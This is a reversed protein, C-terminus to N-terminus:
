SSCGAIRSTWSWRFSDDFVARGEVSSTSTSGSGARRARGVERRLQGSGLSFFWPAAFRLPASSDAPSPPESAGGAALRSQQEDADRSPRGGGSLDAPEPGFSLREIQGKLYTTQLHGYVETTIRPDQHRMIKQV